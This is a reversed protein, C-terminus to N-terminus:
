FVSFLVVMYSLVEVKPWIGSSLWLEIIQFSIHMGINVATSSELLWSM